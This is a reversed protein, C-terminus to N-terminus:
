QGPQIVEIREFKLQDSCDLFEGEVRVETGPPLEGLATERNPALFIRGAEVGECGFDKAYRGTFFEDTEGGTLTAAAEGEASIIQLTEIDVSDHHVDGVIGEIEFNSDRSVDDNLERIVAGAGVLLVAVAATGLFIRRSERPSGGYVTFGAM